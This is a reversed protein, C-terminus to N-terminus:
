DFDSFAVFESLVNPLGLSKSKVVIGQRIMKRIVDKCVDKLQAVRLKSERIWRVYRMFDNHQLSQSDGTFMGDTFKCGARLMLKALSYCNNCLAFEIPVMPGYRCVNANSNISLIVSSLLPTDLDCGNNILFRTAERWGHVLLLWIPSIDDYSRANADCDRELLLEMCPISGRQAAYHFCNWGRSDTQRVDTGAKLLLQAHSKVNPHYDYYTDLFAGMIATQGHLNRINVDVKADLLLQFCDNTLYPNQTALHLVTGSVAGFPEKVYTIYRHDVHNGPVKFNHLRSAGAKLGGTRLTAGFNVDCGAKILLTLLESVADPEFNIAVYMIPSYNWRDLVDPNAGHSLLLSVMEKHLLYSAMHLPTMHLNGSAQNVRAGAHLLLKALSIDNQRASFWLLSVQEFDDTDILANVNFKERKVFDLLNQSRKLTECAKQKLSYLKSKQQGM